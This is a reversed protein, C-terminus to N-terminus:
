SIKYSDSCYFDSKKVNLDKNTVMKNGCCVQISNVGKLSVYSGFLEISNAGKYSPFSRSNCERTKDVKGPCSAPLQLTDGNTYLVCYRLDINDSFLKTCEDNSLNQCKEMLSPRLREYEEASIGDQLEFQIKPIAGNEFNTITIKSNGENTNNSRILLFMVIIIAVILISWALKNMLKM